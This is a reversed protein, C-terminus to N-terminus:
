LEDKVKVNYDKEVTLRNPNRMSLGGLKHTTHFDQQDLKFCSYAERFNAYELVVASFDLDDIKM